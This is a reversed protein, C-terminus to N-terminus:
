FLKMLVSMQGRCSICVITHQMQTRHCPREQPHFPSHLTMDLTLATCDDNSAHREGFKRTSWHFPHNDSWLQQRIRIAFPGSLEINGCVASASVSPDVNKHKGCNEVADDTDKRFHINPRNRASRIGPCNPVEHHFPCTCVHHTMVKDDTDRM